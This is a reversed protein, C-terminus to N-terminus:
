RMAPWRKPRDGDMTVIRAVKSTRGSKAIAVADGPKVRGSALTGAFGRFDPNPRNVWQVPLRFPKDAMASDVDITELHDLLAQGDYWPTRGSKTIVNDGNGAWFPIAIQSAFGLTKAFSAFDAVIRDFVSQSYDVLDIKNVALVIHRIGLLSAIYAHRRTQM